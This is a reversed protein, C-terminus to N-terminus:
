PQADEVSRSAEVKRERLLELARSECLRGLWGRFAEGPDFRYTRMRRALDIWVRQRIEDTTEPDLRFRRCCSRIM